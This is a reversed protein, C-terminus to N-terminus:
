SRACEPGCRRSGPGPAPRGQGVPFQAAVEIGGLVGFEGAEVVVAGDVLGGALLQLVVQVQFGGPEALLALAGLGSCAACRLRRGALRINERPCVHYGPHTNM